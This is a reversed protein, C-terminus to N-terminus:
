ASDHIEGEYIIPGITAGDPATCGPIMEKYSAGCCRCYEYDEICASRNGYYDEKKQPSLSDYYLNFSAVDEEAHKRTIGMHTWSCKGCVVMM